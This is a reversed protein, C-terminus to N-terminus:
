PHTRRLQLCRQLQEATTGPRECDWQSDNYTPSGWVLIMMVAVLVGALNLGFGWKALLRKTRTGDWGPDSLLLGCALAGLAGGIMLLWGNGFLGYVSFPVTLYFAKDYFWARKM